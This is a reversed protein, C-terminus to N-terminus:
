RTAIPRVAPVPGDVGWQGAPSATEPLDLFIRSEFHRCGDPTTDPHHALVHELHERAESLQRARARLEEIRDEVIRTWGLRAAPGALIDGIEDLSMLGCRQWYRIIAIRRIEEPGYWRRGAHRSVPTVLGREEYYRIASARLGFRRAVTDIPLLDPAGTTASDAGDM